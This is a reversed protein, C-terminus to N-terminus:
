QKHQLHTQVYFNERINIIQGQKTLVIKDIIDEMRCCQPRSNLIKVKFASDERNNKISCVYYIKISHAMFQDFSILLIM